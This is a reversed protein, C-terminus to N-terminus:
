IAMKGVVENVNVITGFIKEVERSTADVDIIKSFIDSLVQSNENIAINLQKVAIGIEDSSIKNSEFTNRVKMIDERFTTLVESLKEIEM